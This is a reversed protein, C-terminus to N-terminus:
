KASKETGSMEEPLQFIFEALTEIDRRLKVLATAPDQLADDRTLLIEMPERSGTLYRYHSMPLSRLHHLLERRSFDQSFCKKGSELAFLWLRETVLTMGEVREKFTRPKWKDVPLIECLEDWLTRPSPRSFFSQLADNLRRKAGSDLFYLKVRKMAAESSIPRDRRLDPEM